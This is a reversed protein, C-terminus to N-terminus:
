KKKIKKIKKIKKKIKKTYFAKIIKTRRLRIIQYIEIIVLIGGTWPDCLKDRRLLHSHTWGRVRESVGWNNCKWALTSISKHDLIVRIAKTSIINLLFKNLSLDLCKSQCHWHNQRLLINSHPPVPSLPDVKLPIRDGWAIKVFKMMILAIIKGLM